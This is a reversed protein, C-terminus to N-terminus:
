IAKPLIKDPIDNKLAAFSLISVRSGAAIVITEESPTRSLIETLGLVVPDKIEVIRNDEGSIVFQGKELYVAINPVQGEYVLPFDKSVTTVESIIRLWKFLEEYDAEKHISCM